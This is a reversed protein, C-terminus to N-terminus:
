KKPEPTTYGKGQCDKCLHDDPFEGTGDCTKCITDPEEPKVGEDGEYHEFEGEVPEEYDYGYDPPDFPEPHIYEMEHKHILEDTFEDEFRPM